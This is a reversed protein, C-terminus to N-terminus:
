HTHWDAHLSEETFDVVFLRGEHDIAAARPRNFKGDVVGRTGWVLDPKRGGAAPTFVAYGGAALLGLVVIIALLRRM